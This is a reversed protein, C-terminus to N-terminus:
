DGEDADTRGKARGHRRDLLFLAPPILNAGIATLYTKVFAAGDFEAGTGSAPPALDEGKAKNEMAEFGGMLGEAFRSERFAPQYIEDIVRKSFADTIFGELGYGVEIRMRREVPAILVLLGNDKGAQGLWWKDFTATAAAEIAEGQLGRAVYVAAWIGSEDRLRRIRELLTRREGETLLGAEDLLDGQFAPANFAAVPHALGLLFLLLLALFL